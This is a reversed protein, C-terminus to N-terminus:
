KGSLIDWLHSLYKIQKEEELVIRADIITANNSNVSLPNIDLEKIEGHKEALKSLKILNQKIVKINVKKNKLKPYFKIEKIMEETDKENLPAVRFSVDKEKEINSGGHGFMIVEGFEPTKKLGLIMNEGKIMPQIIVEEFDKIKSLKNFANEAQKQDKINLLVGGIKAKHIIKKSSIRKLM